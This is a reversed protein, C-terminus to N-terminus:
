FRRQIGADFWTRASAVEADHTVDAYISTRRSLFYFDGVHIM